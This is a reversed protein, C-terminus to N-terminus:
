HFGKFQNRKNFMSVTFLISFFLLLIGVISPIFKLLGMLFVGFSLAVLILGFLVTYSM